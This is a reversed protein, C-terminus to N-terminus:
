MHDLLSLKFGQATATLSADLAHQALALQSAAQVPDADQLHSLATLASVQTSQGVASATQLQELSTGVQTRARGLQDLSADLNGLTTSIGASSDSRLAASLASLTAFADVGGGAGKLAQDARVSVPQLVGPAVEISRTQADGLYNGSADFPPKSDQTGGFLYRAGQRTNLQAVLGQALQDVEAAANSRDSASYTDNALQVALEKARNLLTGMGDLAGDATALEDSARGAATTIAATRDATLRGSVILGAAGPDDSPQEVRLGSSNEEVASSVRDRARAVGATAGAFIMQDTIRM